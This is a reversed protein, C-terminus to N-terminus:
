SANNKGEKEWKYVCEEPPPLHANQDPPLMGAEECVQIIERATQMTKECGDWEKLKKLIKSAMQSKKM